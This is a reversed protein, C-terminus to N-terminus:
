KQERLMEIKVVDEFYAVVSPPFWPPSFGEVGGCFDRCSGGSIFTGRRNQVPNGAFVIIEQAAALIAKEFDALDENPVWCTVRVSGGAALAVAGGPKNWLVKEVRVAVAVYISTRKANTGMQALNGAFTGTFLVDHKRELQAIVANRQVGRAGMRNVFATTDDAAKGRKDELAAELQKRKRADEDPLIEVREANSVCKLEASRCIATLINQISVPLLYRCEVKLDKPVVGEAYELKRGSLKELKPLVEALPVNGLDLRVKKELGTGEGEGPALAAFFHLIERCGAPALLVNPWGIDDRRKVETWWLDLRNGVDEKEGHCHVELYFFEKEEKGLFKLNMQGSCFCDNFTLRHGLIMRGEEKGKVPEGAKPFGGSVHRKAIAETLAIVQKRSLFAVADQIEEPQTVMFCGEPGFDVQLSVAKTLQEHLEQAEAVASGILIAMLCLYGNAFIRMLKEKQDREM